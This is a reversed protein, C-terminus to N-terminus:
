FPMRKRLVDAVEPELYIPLYLEADAHYFKGREGESFGYEEIM